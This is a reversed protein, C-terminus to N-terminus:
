LVKDPLVSSVRIIIESFFSFLQRYSVVEEEPDARDVMYGRNEELWRDLDRRRPAEEGRLISGDELNVVTVREDVFVRYTFDYVRNCISSFDPRTEGM